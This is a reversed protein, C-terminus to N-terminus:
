QNLWPHHDRKSTQWPTTEARRLDPTLAATATKIEMRKVLFGAGLPVPRKSSPKQSIALQGYPRDEYSKM